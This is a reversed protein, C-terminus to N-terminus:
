ISAAFIPELAPILPDALVVAVVMALGSALRPVWQVVAVVKQGRRSSLPM